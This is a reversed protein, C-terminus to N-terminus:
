KKWFAYKTPWSSKSNKKNGAKPHQAAWSLDLNIKRDRDRSRCYNWKGLRWWLRLETVRIKQTSTERGDPSTGAESRNLTSGSSANDDDGATSKSTLERLEKITQDPVTQTSTEHADPSTGGESPIQTSGSSPIDENLHFQWNVMTQMSSQKGKHFLYLSGFVGLLAGFITFVLLALCVLYINKRKAQLVTRRRPREYVRGM